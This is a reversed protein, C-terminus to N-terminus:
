LTGWNLGHFYPHSKIEDLGRDKGLRSDHECCLRQICDQAERSIPIEPPFVLTERWNM